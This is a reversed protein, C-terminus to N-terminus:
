HDNKIIALIKKSDESVLYKLSVSNPLDHNFGAMTAAIEDNIIFLPVCDKSENDLKKEIFLNKIKKTGGRLHIRDGDRRNRIIIENNDGKLQLCIINKDNKHEKFYTYDVYRFTFTTSLEKVKYESIASEEIVVRYEWISARNDIGMNRTFQIFKRNNKLIKKIIVDDNKYLIINAREAKLKKEIENIISKKVYQKFNERLVKAICYNLIERDDSCLNFDIFVDEDKLNIINKLNKNLLTDTVNLTEDALQSLDKISNNINPFKEGIQPILQNRLYNRLYLSEKNSSDERWLLNNRRNFEYIEEVTLCLLPRIINDRKVPIGKLGHIGTGSFIRMLVTEIQDNQNHGMAVKDIKKEHVIDDIMKYRIERAYEEFSTGGKKNVSFDFTRSILETSQHMSLEKIFAADDDAESGRIKHNLHFLTATISYKEVLSNLIYILAVSDKGASVSILINDGNEILNHLDIYDEVKKIIYDLM